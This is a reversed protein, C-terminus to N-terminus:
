EVSPVRVVQCRARSVCQEAVPRTADPHDEGVVLAVAGASRALLTEVVPGTAREFRLRVAPSHRAQDVAARFAPDVEDPPPVPAGPPLVRVFTVRGGVRRAERVAAAAVARASGDNLLGAVVEPTAADTAAQDTQDRM